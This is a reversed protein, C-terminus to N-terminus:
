YEINTAFIHHTEFDAGAFLDVHAQFERLVHSNLWSKACAEKTSVPPFCRAYKSNRM